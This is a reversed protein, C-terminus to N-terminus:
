RQSIKFARHTVYQHLVDHSMSKYAVNHGFHLNHGIVFIRPHKTGYM